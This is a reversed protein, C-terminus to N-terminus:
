RTTGLIALSTFRSASSKAPRCKDNTPSALTFRTNRNAREALCILAPQYRQADLAPFCQWQDAGVTLLQGSTLNRMSVQRLDPVRGILSRLGSPRDAFIVIPHLPTLSNNKVYGIPYVLNATFAAACQRRYYSNGTWTLRSKRLYNNTKSDIDRAFKGPTRHTASTGFGM